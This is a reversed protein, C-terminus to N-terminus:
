LLTTWTLCTLVSHNCGVTAGATIETAVNDHNIVVDVYGVRVIHEPRQRRTLLRLDVNFGNPATPAARQIGDNGFTLLSVARASDDIGAPRIFPHALKRRDRFRARFYPARGFLLPALNQVLLM